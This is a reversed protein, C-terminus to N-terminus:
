EDREIVNMKEFKAQRLPKESLMSIDALMKKNMTVLLCAKGYVKELSFGDDLKKIKYNLEDFYSYRCVESMKNEYALSCFPVANKIAMVVGHYRMSVVFEAYKILSDYDNCDRLLPVSVRKVGMKKFKEQCMKHLSSETASGHMHQVIVINLNNKLAFNGIEVLIKDMSKKSLQDNKFDPHWTNLRTPVFALYKERVLRRDHTNCFSFATDVGRIPFYGKEVLHQYSQLERVYIQSHRLIINEFFNFIYNNSFEVTNFHFIPRGGFVVVMYLKILYRWDKYIGLNAGGPSVLIIDADRIADRYNKLVKKYVFSVHFISFLMFLFIQVSGMQKLSLDNRDHVRMDPYKLSGTTNYIIEIKTDKFPFLKLIQNILSFGAIDDGFNLTHQNVILFKM